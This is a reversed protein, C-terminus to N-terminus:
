SSPHAHYCSGVSRIEDVGPVDPLDNDFIIVDAPTPMQHVGTHVTGTTLGRTKDTRKMRFLDRDTIVLQARGGSHPQGPTSSRVIPHDGMVIIPGSVLGDRQHVNLVGEGPRLCRSRRGQIPGTPGTPEASTIQARSQRSGSPRRAPASRRRRGWRWGRGPSEDTPELRIADGVPGIRVTRRTVGFLESANDALTGSAAPNRGQQDVRGIGTVATTATAATAAAAATTPVFGM